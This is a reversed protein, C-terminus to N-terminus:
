CVCRNTMLSSAPLVYNLMWTILLSFRVLEHVVHDVQNLFQGASVSFYLNPYNPDQM